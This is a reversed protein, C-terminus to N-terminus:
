CFFVHFHHHCHRRRWWRRRGHVKVEIAVTGGRVDSCRGAGLAKAVEEETGGGAGSASVGRSGSGVGGLVLEFEVETTM